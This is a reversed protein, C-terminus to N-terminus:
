YGWKGFRHYPIETNPLSDNMSLFSERRRSIRAQIFRSFLTHHGASENEHQSCRSSNAVGSEPSSFTESESSIKAIRCLWFDDRFTNRRFAKSLIQRLPVGFTIKIHKHKTGSRLEPQLRISIRRTQSPSTATREQIFYGIRHRKFCM